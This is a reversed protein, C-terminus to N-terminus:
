DGLCHSGSARSVGTRRLNGPTSVHIIRLGRIEPAAEDGCRGPLSHVFTELCEQDSNGATGDPSHPGMLIRPILSDCQLADEPCFTQTQRLSVRVTDASVVDLKGSAPEAGVFM